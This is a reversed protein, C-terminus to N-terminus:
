TRPKASLTDCLWGLLGKRGYKRLAAVVRESARDPDNDVIVAARQGPLNRASGEQERGVLVVGSLDYADSFDRTSEAAGKLWAAGDNIEDCLILGTNKGDLRFVVKSDHVVGSPSVHIEAWSPGVNLRESVKLLFRWWFGDAYGLYAAEVYGGCVALCRAGWTLWVGKQPVNYNQLLHYLAPVYVGSIVTQKGYAQLRERPVVVEALVQSFELMSTTLTQLLPLLYRGRRFQGGPLQVDWEFRVRDTYVWVDGGRHVLKTRIGNVQNFWRLKTALFEFGKNVRAPNNVAYENLEHFSEFPTSRAIGGVSSVVDAMDCATQLMVFYAESDVGVAVLDPTRGMDPTVGEYWLLRGALTALNLVDHGFSIALENLHGSPDPRNALADCLHLYYEFRNLRASREVEITTGLAIM